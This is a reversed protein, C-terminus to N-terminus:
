RKAEVKSLFTDAKHGVTTVRMQHTWLDAFFAGDLRCDKTASFLASGLSM